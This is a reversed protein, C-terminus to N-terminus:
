RRDLEPDPEGSELQVGFTNLMMSVQTYQGVTFVLDMRGKDGLPELKSWTADSIFHDHHLEDCATLIAHEIESWKGAGPGQKLLEIEDQSIGSRLGIATHQAFEYGSGCNFGTRLIALERERPGLANRKSLMYNGWGLFRKLAEPAHALTLFINLPAAGERTVPALAEAQEESLAAPDLPTIRPTSLRM